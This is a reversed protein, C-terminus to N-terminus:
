GRPREFQPPLGLDSRAADIFKSNFDAMEGLLSKSKDRFAGLERASGEPDVRRANAPDPHNRGWERYLDQLQAAKWVVKVAGDNAAFSGEFVIKNLADLSNSYSTQLDQKPPVATCTATFDSYRCVITDRQYMLADKLDTYANAFATYAAVQQGRTFSTQARMSEQKDHEVGTFYTTVAGVVGVLTTAVIGFVALWFENSRRQKQPPEAESGLPKSVPSADSEQIPGDAPKGTTSSTEEGEPTPEDTPSEPASSPEGHAPAPEEM